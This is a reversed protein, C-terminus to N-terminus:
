WRVALVDAAVLGLRLRRWLLRIDFLLPLLVVASAGLQNKKPGSSDFM